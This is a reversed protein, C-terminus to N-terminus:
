KECWQPKTTKDSKKKEERMSVHDIFMECCGPWKPRMGTVFASGYYLVMTDSTMDSNIDIGAIFNAHLNISDTTNLPFNIWERDRPLFRIM